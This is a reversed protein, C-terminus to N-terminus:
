LATGLPGRPLILLNPAATLLRATIGRLWTPGETGRFAVVVHADSPPGHARTNGVSLRKADLGLKEKVAAPGADPGLYALECALGLFEANRHDGLADEILELTMAGETLEPGWTSATM